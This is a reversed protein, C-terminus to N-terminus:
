LFMFVLTLFFTITLVFFGTSVLNNLDLGFGFDWSIHRIGNLIHFFFTTLLIFFFIYMFVVVFFYLYYFFNYSIFSFILNVCLGIVLLILALMTGSIRHFISLISTLQPKYLSLHPSLPRNLQKM